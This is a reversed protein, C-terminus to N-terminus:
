YGADRAVFLELALRANRSCDPKRRHPEPVANTRRSTSGELPLISLRVGPAQDASCLGAHVERRAAPRGVGLRLPWDAGEGSVSTPRLQGRDMHAGSQGGTTWAPDLKGLAEATDAETVIDYRRFVSATKHGTIKM